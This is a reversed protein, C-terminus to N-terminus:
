SSTLGGIIECVEREVKEFFSYFIEKAPWPSLGRIAMIRSPSHCNGNKPLIWTAGSVEMYIVKTLLGWRSDMEKWFWLPTCWPRSVFKDMFVLVFSTTLEEAMEIDYKWMWKKKEKHRQLTRILQKWKRILSFVNQHCLSIGSWGKNEKAM